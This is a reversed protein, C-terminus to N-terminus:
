LVGTNIFFKVNTEVDVFGLGFPAVVAVLTVGSRQVLMVSPAGGHRYIMTDIDGEFDREFTIQRTMVAVPPVVVGFSRFHGVVLNTFAQVKDTIVSQGNTGFAKHYAPM